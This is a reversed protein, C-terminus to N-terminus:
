ISGIYTYVKHAQISPRHLSPQRNVLVIDGNKMHRHVKKTTSRSTQTNPTLLSGAIAERETKNKSNLKM